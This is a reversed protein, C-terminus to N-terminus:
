LECYPKPNLTEPHKPQPCISKTQQLTTRYMCSQARVGSSTDSIHIDRVEFGWNRHCDQDSLGMSLGHLWLYIRLALRYVRFVDGFRVRCPLFSSVCDLFCLCLVHIVIDIHVSLTYVCIDM